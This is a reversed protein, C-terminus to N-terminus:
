FFRRFVISIFSWVAIGVLLSAAAVYFAHAQYTQFLGIIVLVTATVGLSWAPVHWLAHVKANEEPPMSLQTWAMISMTLVGSILFIILGYTWLNDVLFLSLARPTLGAVICCTSCLVLAQVFHRDSEDFRGKNNSLALFVAVFGLLTASVETILELQDFAEM